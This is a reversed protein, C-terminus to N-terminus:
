GERIEVQHDKVLAKVIASNFANAEEDKLTRESSRYQLSYAISKRGVGIGSSRFIDFLNVSTLEPPASRRITEMVEQHTLSEGVLMAIDRRIAPYVPIERAQPVSYAHALLPELDCELVALPGSIRWKNRIRAAILGLTGCLHGEISLTHCTHAEFIASTSPTYLPEGAHLGRALSELVGRIWSMMEEDTVLRREALSPRGVHGMLGVCVRRSESQGGGADAYFVTGIEFLAAHENQYSFNRGLTDVLQPILSPRM